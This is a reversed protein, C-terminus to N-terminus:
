AHLFLGSCLVGAHVEASGRTRQCKDQGQDRPGLVLLVVLVPGLSWPSLSRRARSVRGDLRRLVRDLWELAFAQFRAAERKALMISCTAGFGIPM